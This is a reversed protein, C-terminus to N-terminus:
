QAFQSASRTGNFFGKKSGKKRPPSELHPCTASNVAVAGARVSAGVWPGADNMAVATSMTVRSVIAAESALQSNPWHSALRVRIEPAASATPPPPATSSIAATASTMTVADVHHCAASAQRHNRATSQEPVSVSAAARVSPRRLARAAPRAHGRFGRPMLIRGSMGLSLLILARLASISADASLWRSCLSYPWATSTARSYRATLGPSVSMREISARDNNAASCGPGAEIM